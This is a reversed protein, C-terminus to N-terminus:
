AVLRRQSRDQEVKLGAFIEPLTIIKPTEVEIARGHSPAYAPFVNSTARFREESEQIFLLRMLLTDTPPFDGSLIICLEEIKKGQSWVVVKKHGPFIQYTRNEGKYTVFGRCIFKQYADEGILRRLTQRARIERVDTTRRIVNDRIIVAPAQRNRIIEKIREVADVIPHSRGRGLWYKVHHNYSSDTTTDWATYTTSTTSLTKYYPTLYAETANVSNRYLYAYKNYYSSTDTIDTEDDYASYSLTSIASTGTTSYRMLSRYIQKLNRDDPMEKELHELANMTADVFGRQHPHVEEGTALVPSVKVTQNKFVKLSLKARMADGDPTPQFYTEVKDVVSVTTNGYPDVTTYPLEYKHQMCYIADDVAVDLEREAVGKEIVASM